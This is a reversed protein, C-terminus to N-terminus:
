KIVLAKLLKDLTETVSGYVDFSRTYCGKKINLDETTSEIIIQIKDINKAM